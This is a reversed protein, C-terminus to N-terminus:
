FSKIAAKRKADAEGFLEAEYPKYVVFIEGAQPFTDGHRQLYISFKTGTWKVIQNQQGGNAATSPRGYKATLISKLDDFDESPFLGDIKVLRNNVFELSPAVVVSDLEWSNLLCKNGNCRKIESQPQEELTGNFTFARFKLQNTGTPAVARKVPQALAILSFLLVLSFRM